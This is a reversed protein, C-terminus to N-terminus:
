VSPVAAPAPQFLCLHLGDGIPHWYPVMAMGIALKEFPCNVIGGLIRAGEALEILGIAYPVAAAFGGPGLRAITFTYLVGAGSSERWEIERRATFVSLPRPFFQYRRSRPCYQLLLKKDRTAQWFPLSFNSPSIPARIVDLITTM